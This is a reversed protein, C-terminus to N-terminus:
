IKMLMNKIKLIFLYKNEMYNLEREGTLARWSSAPYLAV